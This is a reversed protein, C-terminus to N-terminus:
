SPLGATIADLHRTFHEALIDRHTDPNADLVRTVAPGLTPDTLVSGFTCHLIQRGPETFGKGDPVTDWTELYTQELKLDDTIDAAPAVADVTASVHYTARDTDYRERSFDIIQRFLKPEHKAVVRLAELYSTGATKIHLHGATADALHGYMSLKDSGSHLSLKYPDAHSSLHKAIAAHDKLSQHLATLDGKYDVGKELEGIFRPALSVLNIGAKILQDAIIYHEALTTPQDTEDVSIEIEHPQNRKEAAAKIYAALELAAAIAPGYKVAARQLTPQDFTLTLTDSVKFSQDLYQDLWPAHPAAAYKTAVEADSYNDAQQDVHDSPDITFFTFGADAMYDVNEPTKLHDADSGWPQTYGAAALTNAAAAMVQTPNRDTRAMERISQQAFIGAIPGGAAQHAQLAALHGPTASGLRDGFGFSPTLALASPTSAM